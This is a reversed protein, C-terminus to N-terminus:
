KSLESLFRRFALFKASENLPEKISQEVKEITKESIDAVQVFKGDKEVWEIGEMIGNEWYAGEYMPKVYASPASPDQVIDITSLVFDTNVYDVDEKKTISGMGRSSVGLQVGGDILGKVINGNPTNLIKAKGIIDDGEWDLNEIKHSVEKYNVTPSAPHNLEGVARNTKVQEDIYRDVADKLVSKEYVRGNRNRKESQMFVGELFYEKENSSENLEKRVQTKESIDTILKM